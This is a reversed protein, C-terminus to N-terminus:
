AYQDFNMLRAIKKVAHLTVRLRAHINSLEFFLGPNSFLLRLNWNFMVPVPLVRTLEKYTGFATMVELFRGVVDVNTRFAACVEPFPLFSNALNNCIIGVYEPQIALIGIQLPSDLSLLSPSLFM